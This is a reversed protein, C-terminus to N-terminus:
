VFDRKRPKPLSAHDLPSELGRGPAGEQAARLFREGVRPSGM